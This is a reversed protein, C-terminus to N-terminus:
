VVQKTVFCKAKIKYAFFYTDSNNKSTKVYMVPM